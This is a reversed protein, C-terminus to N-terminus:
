SAKSSKLFNWFLIFFSNYSNTLRNFLCYSYFYKTNYKKNYNLILYKIAAMMICFAKNKLLFLM